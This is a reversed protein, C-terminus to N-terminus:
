TLCVYCRRCVGRWALGRVMFFVYHEGIERAGVGMAKLRGLDMRGPFEYVVIEGRKSRGHVCHPYHEKIAAFHPHPRGLVGDVGERARWALSAEWKARARRADGGCAQLFTLPPQSSASTNNSTTSSSTNIGGMEIVVPASSSSSSPAGAAATAATATATADKRIFPSAPSSSLSADLDEHSLRSYAPGGGESNKSQTHCHAFTQTLVVLRDTM